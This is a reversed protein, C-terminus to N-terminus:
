KRKKRNLILNLLNGIRKYWVPLTDYKDKYWDKIKAIENEYWGVLYQAETKLHKQQSELNQQKTTLSENLRRMQNSKQTLRDVETLLTYLEKNKTSFDKLINLYWQLFEEGQRSDGARIFLYSGILSPSDALKFFLRNLEEAESTGTQNIQYCNAPAESAGGEETPHFVGIEKYGQSLFDTRLKLEISEALGPASSKNSLFCFVPIHDPKLFHVGFSFLCLLNVLESTEKSELKQNRLDLCVGYSSHGSSFLKCLLEKKASIAAPTLCFFYPVGFKGPEPVKSITNLVVIPKLIM